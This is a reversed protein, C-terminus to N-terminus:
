NLFIGDFVSRSVRFNIDRLKQYLENKDTIHIKGTQTLKKIIGLTGKVNLGLNIAQKRAALDDLIIYDAQLETALSIAESEGQGLSQNIRNLLSLLTTRRVQLKGTEILPNIVSIILDDKAQIEEIVATPVYFEDETELFLELFELKGLFILPSSNIVIKM